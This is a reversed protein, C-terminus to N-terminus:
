RKKTKDYYKTIKEAAIVAMREHSQTTKGAMHPTLIVNKLKSFNKNFNPENEFVDIGAYHLKGAKLLSILAKEDITRGRSCNVLISDRSMLKLNHSGILHYTSKNLPTHITVIDSKSLLTNLSVFKIWKYKNKLKPNIDNGVINMGFSKALKAVYSGIRGVGIIGITKGCLEINSYKRNNFIGRKMNANADILNKSIALILAFTFEAASISNGGYINLAKIKYKQCAKLDINDFGSSVTCILRTDTNIYLYKLFDSDIKRTTRIILISSSHLSKKKTKLSKLLKANDLGTLKVVNFRKKLLDIGKPHIEDAIFISAKSKAKM